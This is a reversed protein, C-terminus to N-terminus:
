SLRKKLASKICSEVLKKLQAKSEFQYVDDYDENPVVDYGRKMEASGEPDSQSPDINEDPGGNALAWLSGAIAASAGMGKLIDYFRKKNFDIGENVIEKQLNERVIKRVLAENVTMKKMKFVFVIYFLYIEM